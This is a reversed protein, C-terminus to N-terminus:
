WRFSACGAPEQALYFLFGKEHRANQGGHIPAGRKCFPQDGRAFAPVLQERACDLRFPLVGSTRGVGAPLATKVKAAFLPHSSPLYPYQREVYYTRHRLLNGLLRGAEDDLNHGTALTRCEERAALRNLLQRKVAGCISCISRRTRNRIEEITWGFLEKLSYHTWTLNRALAFEAVADVSAESFGEIGLNIHLGRTKYGLNNM